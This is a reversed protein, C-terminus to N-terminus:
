LIKKHNMNKYFFLIIEIIIAELLELPFFLTIMFLFRMGNGPFLKYLIVELLIGISLISFIAIINKKPSSHTVNPTICYAIPVLLPFIFLAYQGFLFEGFFPYFINGIFIFLSLSLHPIKFISTM